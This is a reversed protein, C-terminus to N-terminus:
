FCQGQEAAATGLFVQPDAEGSPLGEQSPDQTFALRTEATGQPCEPGHTKPRDRVQPWSGALGLSRKREVLDWRKYFVPNGAVGDCEHRPSGEQDTGRRHRQLLGGGCM